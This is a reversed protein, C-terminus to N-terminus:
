SLDEPHNQQVFHCRDIQQAVEQKRKLHELASHDQVCELVKQAQKVSPSLDEWQALCVQEVSPALEEQQSDVKQLSDWRLDWELDVQM